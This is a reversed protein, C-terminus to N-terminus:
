LCVRVVSSEPKLCAVVVGDDPAIRQTDQNPLSEGPFLLLFKTAEAPLYQRGIAVAYGTRCLKILQWECDGASERTCEAWSRRASRSWRDCDNSVEWVFELSLEKSMKNSSNGISTSGTCNIFWSSVCSVVFGEASIWGIWKVPVLGSLKKSQISFKSSM